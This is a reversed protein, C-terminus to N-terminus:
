PHRNNTAARQAPKAEFCVKGLYAKVGPSRKWLLPCHSSSQEYALCGISNCLKLQNTIVEPTEPRPPETTEHEQVVRLLPFRAIRECIDDCGTFGREIPDQLWPAPTTPDNDWKIAEASM